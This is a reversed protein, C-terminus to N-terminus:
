EIPIYAKPNQEQIFYHAHKQMAPSLSLFEVGIGPPFGRMERGRVWRVVGTGEFDNKKFHVKDGLTPFRMREEVFMGGWGVSLENIELEAVKFAVQDLDIPRSWVESRDVVVQAIASIVATPDFPKGLVLNAGRNYAEDITIDSYGSILIVPLKRTLESRIRDLLQVGDGGPMRIDSAVVDFEIKSLMSFALQGNEAEQVVANADEFEERLISRIAPEDDVVLVRKGSLEKM